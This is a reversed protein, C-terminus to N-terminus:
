KPFAYAVYWNIIRQGFVLSVMAGAALYPGFAIATRGTKGKFLMMGVGTLAGVMIAALFAVIAQPLLLFSGIMAALKADGQGMGTQEEENELETAVEEKTLYQQDESVVERERVFKRAAPFVLTSGSFKLLLYAYDDVVGLFFKSMRGVPDPLGIKGTYYVYGAFSIFHFILACVIAAFVANPLHLGFVKAWLGAGQRSKFIHFIACLNYSVGILVGLVSLEDPIMFTDLDIFFITVLLAAFLCGFLTAWDLGYTLYVAFFSFGTIAEVAFYRWSIPKSCYRCKRGLALFSFLPVLDLGSLRHECHPCYSWAPSSVSLGQPIRWIVVNLFSGIVVGYVTTTVLGLM